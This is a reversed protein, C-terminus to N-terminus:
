AATCYHKEFHRMVTAIVEPTPHRNDDEYPDRFYEKVIEYAPFYFLKKDDSHARVFEDIAVRLIAKSVSSATICSVPRFTAMLPVPSLTFILSANPVHQRVLARIAEINRYNEEVSSIRFAHVNEDFM